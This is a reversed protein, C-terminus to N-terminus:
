RRAWPSEPRPVDQAWAEAFPEYEATFKPRNRSGSMMRDWNSRPQMAAIAVGSMVMYRLTDMLHDNSKVIKGKEDRRYLRYEMLFSQLTRFVKIRGSSLRAWTEYIGSEVANNAPVLILGLEAYTNRLSIGDAQSRGRAAPDIVGPIWDGRSKIAQAHVAPQVESQYHESYLYLVDTEGDLAGWLAATRNWGVDLAYVHRYYVPIQFPECTIESEGVPYIAGAGLSPIGHMRADREHPMYARALEAQGAADLHPSDAWGAQVVYRTM